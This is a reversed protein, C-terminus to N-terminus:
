CHPKVSIPNYQRDYHPCFDLTTEAVVPLVYTRLYCLTSSGNPHPIYLVTMVNKIVLTIVAM